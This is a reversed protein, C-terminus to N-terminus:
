KNFKETFETLAHISRMINYIIEICNYGNEPEESIYFFALDILEEKFRSPLEEIIKNSILIKLLTEMFEIDKVTKLYEM